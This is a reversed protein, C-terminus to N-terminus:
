LGKKWITRYISYLTSNNNIRNLALQCNSVNINEIDYVERFSYQKVWKPEIYRSTKSLDAWWYEVDEIDFTERNYRYITFGPNGSIGCAGQGQNNNDAIGTTTVSGGIFYPYLLQSSNQISRVVSFDNMHVHGFLQLKILGPYQSIIQNFKTLVRSNWDSYPHHGILIVKEKRGYSQHLSNNFWAIQAFPDPWPGMSTDEHYISDPVLALTNLSILRFGKRVRSTYFGAWGSTRIADEPLWYSWLKQITNYLWNDQKQSGTIEDVPFFEHNGLSHFVPTKMFSIMQQTIINKTSELNLERSQLWIDHSPNDGTDIIFDPKDQLNSFYNHLHESLRNPIDCPSGLTGWYGASFKSTNNLIVSGEQNRCCLPLTCNSSMNEKYKSDVHFDTVHIFYGSGTLNNWNNWQKEGNLNSLNSIIQPIIPIPNESKGKCIGLDYCYSGRNLNDDIMKLMVPVYEKLIGHCLEDCSKGLCSHSGNIMKCVPFGVKEVTNTTLNSSTIIELGRSITQCVKCKLDRDGLVLFTNLFCILLFFVLKLM